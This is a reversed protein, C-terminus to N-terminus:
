RKGGLPSRSLDVSEINIFSTLNARITRQATSMVTLIAHDGELSLNLLKPPFGSQQSPLESPPILIDRVSVTSNSLAVWVVRFEEATRTAFLFQDSDEWFYYGALFHASNPPVDVNDTERNSTVPYLAFGVDIYDDLKVGLPRNESPSKGADYLMAHDDPSPTGHPPFFKTYAVYRGNPSVAPIYCTFHDVVRSGVIDVIGVEYVAGAQMGVVILKGPVSKIIANVQYFQFPLSVTSQRDRTMVHFISHSEGTRSDRPGPVLEATVDPSVLEVRQQHEPHFDRLVQGPAATGLSACAFVYAMAFWIRSM